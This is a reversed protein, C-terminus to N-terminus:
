TYLHQVKYHAELKDTLAKRDTECYEKYTRIDDEDFFAEDLEDIATQLNTLEQRWERYNSFTMTIGKMPNENYATNKIRLYNKSDWVM